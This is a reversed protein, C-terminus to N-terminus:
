GMKAPIFKRNPFHQTLRAMIADINPEELWEITTDRRWWSLQKRAYHRTNRKILRVAEELSIHGELYEFLEKYGVTNLANLGRHPYLERAEELMGELLMKDVRANIREYLLERPLDLGIKLIDFPREKDRGKLFSSYPKLTTLYVEYAHLLRKYNNRDVQQLYTPDIQELEQYIEDIGEAEYRQYVQERILPDVDPMEDIGRCVADIYMMSGGTLIQISSEQWLKDELLALAQKEFLSASFYESIAHTGVFYHPVREREQLTAAATGIPMDYYIQRSDASLISCGLREALEIALRTKGSATPGLLAILLPRSPM